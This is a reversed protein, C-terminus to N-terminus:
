NKTIEAPVQPVSGDVANIWTFEANVANIKIYPRIVRIENFDGTVTIGTDGYTITNTQENLTPTACGRVIFRATSTMNDVKIGNAPVSDGIYLDYDYKVNDLVVDGCRIMTTGEPLETYTGPEDIYNKIINDMVVAFQARTIYATPTLKGDIGAWGGRAVVGAVYIKAWDAIENKDTFNNLASIDYLRIGIIMQNETLTEPYTTPIVYPPILEFVQSLITFCEQFTINNSPYMNVGDGNLAGMHYAKAVASYYWAGTDQMDQFASIDATESVKCVRTIISAMEARTINKDPAFTGDGAGSIIGNKAANEIAQAYPSDAPVDSFTQASAVSSFAITLAMILSMFKFKKM